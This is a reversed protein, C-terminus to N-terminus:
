TSLILPFPIQNKETQLSSPTSHIQQSLIPTFSNCAKQTASLFNLQVLLTYSTKRQIIEDVYIKLKSKAKCTAKMNTRSDPLHKKYQIASKKINNLHLPKYVMSISIKKNVSYCLSGLLLRLVIIRPNYFCLYRWVNELMRSHLGLAINNSKEVLM